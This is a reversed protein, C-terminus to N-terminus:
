RSIWNEVVKNVIKPFIDLIFSCINKLHDLTHSKDAYLLSKVYGWMFYDVPTHDCSRSCINTHGNGFNQVYRIDEMHLLRVCNQMMKLRQKSM